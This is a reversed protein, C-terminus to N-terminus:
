SNNGTKGKALKCVTENNLESLFYDRQLYGYQILHSGILNYCKQGVAKILCNRSDIVATKWDEQNPSAVARDMAVQVAFLLKGVSDFRVAILKQIMEDPLDLIFIPEPLSVMRNLERALSRQEAEWTRVRQEHEIRDMEQVSRRLHKFLETARLMEQKEEGDPLTVAKHEAALQYLASAELLRRKGEESNHLWADWEPDIIVKM